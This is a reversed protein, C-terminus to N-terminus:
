PAYVFENLNFLALCFSQLGEKEILEQARKVEEEGAARSLALEIATRALDGEDGAQEEIRQAFAAAMRQMFDSNLLYLPQLAVTSVRRRSCSTLANAGNFLMQQHPLKDRKQELYVSRRTSTEMDKAPVSPGGLAVDLRGAVALISDRIAEAELRRPERRWLLKNDPDIAANAANYDSSQRYASSGLILRHLHRASWGNDILEAALWDLLEPHSPRAGQTGFDGSTEVIGRGFHWQWIRNAWVRATLPNDKSALWDALELRTKESKGAKGGFVAPWGPAVEPGPSGIDGRILIRTKRNALGEPDRPLPWRMEHPAILPKTSAAAPSYYSWAQPQTAIEKELRDFIRREEATMGGIVSKPIVLIPEPYGKKRRANILRTQVDDFIRWRETVLEVIREESGKNNGRLVVNGPEGRAFFAQLRYYDRMSIPDFKHEHCQACEFTLGLFTQATTNVVDVLIDNRQIEKDLENGSYRAAALFGLAESHEDSYPLEDGAIQERIFQDFPKDENFSRIVYDRYRWAFPRNRNHQHGNSEAWRALDLWHRAWREGHQRSYLLEDVYADDFAPAEGGADPPLGTLDLSVRRRLAANDAAPAPTLGAQEHRRAVFADIPTRIWDANGVEPIAPRRIPQFAWHDSNPIPTPALEEDWDLGEDIWAKLTAVEKDSLRPGAKPPPMRHEDDTTTVLEILHSGDANFPATKNLAEEMINLHLGAKPKDGSHCDLCHKKLIPHIHKAFDVTKKVARKPDESPKPQTPETEPPLGLIGRWNDAIRIDSVHIRDTPETKGGTAFGLWKVSAISKRSSTSAHPKFEAGPLPDIWLDLNDFPSKEGAKTKWLRAVLRYDVDGKLRTKTHREVGSAFRVMFSNQGNAVHVGLNPVGGNHSATDDGEQDDLWLIFFEGNGKGEIPPDISGADYRLDFRIFLEEGSFPEALAQRIPNNRNQTGRIEFSQPAPAIGSQIWSGGLQPPTAASAGPAALALAVLISGSQRFGSRKM